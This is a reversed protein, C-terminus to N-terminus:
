KTHTGQGVYKYILWMAGLYFLIFIPNSYIKFLYVCIASPYLYALFGFIKNHKELYKNFADGSAVSYIALITGILPFIAVASFIMAYIEDRFYFWETVCCGVMLLLPWVWGYSLLKSGSLKRARGSVFIGIVLPILAYLFTLLRFIFMEYIADRHRDYYIGVKDKIYQFDCIIICVFILAIIAVKSTNSGKTKGIILGLTFLWIALAIRVMFTRIGFFMRSSFCWADEPYYLSILPLVFVLLIVSIISLKKLTQVKMTKTNNLIVGM